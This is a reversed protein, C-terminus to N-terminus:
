MEPRQLCMRKRQPGDMHSGSWCPGSSSVGADNQFQFEPFVSAGPLSTQTHNCEAQMSFHPQFGNIQQSSAPTINSSDHSNAPCSHPQVHPTQLSDASETPTRITHAHRPLFATHHNNSSVTDMREAALRHAQTLAPSSSLPPHSTLIRAESADEYGVWNESGSIHERQMSLELLYEAEYCAALSHEYHLLRELDLQSMTSLSNDSM